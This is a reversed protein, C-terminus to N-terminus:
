FEMSWRVRATFREGLYWGGGQGALMDATSGAILLAQYNNKSDRLHKGLLELLNWALVSLAEAAEEENGPFRVYVGVVWNGVGDIEGKGHQMAGYEIEPLSDRWVFIVQNAFHEDAFRNEITLSSDTLNTVLAAANDELIEVIRETIDSFPM